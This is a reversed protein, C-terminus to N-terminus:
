NQNVLIDSVYNNAYLILRDNNPGTIKKTMARQTTVNM